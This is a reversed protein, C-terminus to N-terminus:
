LLFDNAQLTMNGTVEIEFVSWVPFDFETSVRVLTHGDYKM